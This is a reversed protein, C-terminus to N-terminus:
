STRPSPGPTQQQTFIPTRYAFMGYGWYVDRLNLKGFGEDGWSEDWSNAYECDGRDNILRTFVCSHGDWGFVVSFGCLLATGAEEESGIDFFESIRYQMAIERVDPPLPSVGKSRPWVSMPAAGRDRLHELNDDLTSGGSGIKTYYYVSWPNLQVFAQGSISRCIQLAQTASEAACSGEGNQDFIDHVHPRLNPQYTQIIQTWNSRPIVPIEDRFLKCVDGFRSRRPLCGKSKGSPTHM